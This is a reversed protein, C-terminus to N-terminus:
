RLEESPFAAWSQHFGKMPKHSPYIEVLGMRKLNNITLANKKRIIIGQGEISWKQKIQEFVEQQRITLNM